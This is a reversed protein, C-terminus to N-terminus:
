TLVLASARRSWRPVQGSPGQGRSEPTTTRVTQELDHVVRTDPDDMKLGDKGGGAGVYYYNMNKFYENHMMNTLKYRWKWTLRSQIFGYIISLVAGGFQVCTGKILGARFIAVNRSNLTGDLVRIVDTQMRFEILRLGCIALMALSEWEFERWRKSFLLSLDPKLYGWIKWLPANLDDRDSRKSRREQLKTEQHEEKNKAEKIARAVSAMLKKNDYARVTDREDRRQALTKGDIVKDNRAM